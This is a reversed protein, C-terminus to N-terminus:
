SAAELPIRVPGLLADEPIADLTMVAGGLREAFLEAAARDGFPVIEPAGMGGRVDAGVVFVANDAAIWNDAGPAEWSPARAMDSVYVAAIEAEREPGRVYALGDRVQAFFLPALGGAVLIQAKPGDHESVIMGCVHDAAEATLAAPEPIAAVEPECAALGLLALVILRNM